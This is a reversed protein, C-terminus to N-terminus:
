LGEPATTMGLTEEQFAGKGHRLMGVTSGADQILVGSAEGVWGPYYISSLHLWSCNNGSQPAAPAPFVQQEPFLHKLVHFNNGSSGQM